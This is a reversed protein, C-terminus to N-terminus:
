SSFLDTEPQTAISSRLQRYRLGESGEREYECQMNELYSKRRNLNPKQHSAGLRGRQVKHILDVRCEVELVDGDDCIVDLRFCLRRLQLDAGVRLTM